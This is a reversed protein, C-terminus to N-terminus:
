GIYIGLDTKNEENPYADHYGEIFEDHDGILNSYLNRDRLIKIEDITKVDNYGGEYGDIYITLDPDFSELMKILDKIKM